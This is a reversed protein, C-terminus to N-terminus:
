NTLTAGDAYNNCLVSSVFAQGYEPDMLDVSRPAREPIEIIFIIPTDDDPEPSTLTAV